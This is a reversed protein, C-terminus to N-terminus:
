YQSTRNPLGAQPHVCKTKGPELTQPLFNLHPSLRRVYTTARADLTYTFQFLTLHNTVTHTLPPKSNTPDTPSFQSLLLLDTNVVFISILSYFDIEAPVIVPIVIIIPKGSINLFIDWLM